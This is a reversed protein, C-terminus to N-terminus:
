NATTNEPFDTQTAQRDQPCGRRRRRLLAAGMAILSSAAAAGGGVGCVGAPAEPEPKVPTAVVSFHGETVAGPGWLDRAVVSWDVTDGIAVQETLDLATGEVTVPEQAEGNLSWSVEYRLWDDDADAAPAWSLLAREVYAEDVPGLLEPAPPASNAVAAVAAGADVRGCGFYPSWGAGDYGAEDVETRAATECLVERAQAVTLRENAGFMLAIVGSVIPAAASTGTFSPTYDEDGNFADYGDSGTLDTTLVGGSPATIDVYEGYSSYGEREDNGNAAAVSIVSPHAQLGDGGIDCNGNGASFVVATGLGGRGQDEAYDIADRIAAYTEFEACGNDFGWSNSLVWAGADVSEVFSNYLDGLTTEGGLLKIGYVEADYAVGAVGLGNDGTAAALGAASTGHPGGSYHVDPNSDNDFDVYDWGSTVVLDPHDTQVGSDIVAILGGAGTSFAWATEADIDVGETWGQQGTNRLHWQDAVYPDNPLTTPQWRVAFDPHSWAVDERAWLARSLALEDVGEAVFLRVVDGGLPDWDEVEPLAALAAPDATRALVAGTLRVPLDGVHGDKTLVAHEPGRDPYFWSPGAMATSLFLLLSSM